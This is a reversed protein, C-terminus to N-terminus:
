QGRALWALIRMLVQGRADTMGDAVAPTWFYGVRGDGVVNAMAMVCSANSEGVIVPVAGLPRVLCAASKRALLSEDPEIGATLATEGAFVVPGGYNAYVEAGLWSAIPRLDSSGRVMYYPAAAFVLVGSGSEVYEGIEALMRSSSVKGMLILLDAELKENDLDERNILSVSAGLAELAEGIAGKTSAFMAVSKGRLRAPDVLASDRLTEALAARMADGDVRLQELRENAKRLDDARAALSTYHGLMADREVQVESLRSDHETAIGVAEDSAARCAALEDTAADEGVELLLAYALSAHGAADQLREAIRLGIATEDLNERARAPLDPAALARRVGETARENVGRWAAFLTAWDRMRAPDTTAFWPERLRKLWGGHTAPLLMEGHAEEVPEPRYLAALDPAATPSYMHALMRGLFGEDGFIADPWVSGQLLSGWTQTWEQATAPDWYNGDGEHNWSYEVKLLPSGNGAMLISSAGEFSATMIPSAMLPRVVSFPRPWRLMTHRADGGLFYMMVGHGNGRERLAEAMELTRKADNDRRRGNERMCFDVHDTHEMLGSVTCHYEVEVDWADDDESHLTYPASVFWVGCDRAADYSSEPHKVSFIADCFADFVMAQAGAKGDPAEVRDNPWRARCDDCRNSWIEEADGLDDEDVFHIYLVGPETAEVFERLVRQKEAILASNSVCYGRSSPAKEYLCTYVEGDPYSRRNKLKLDGYLLNLLRVGRARAYRNHELQVETDAVSRRYYGPSSIVNIKHEMCWDVREEFTTTGPPGGMIWRSPIDPWDHCTLNPFWVDDGEVQLTHILTMVAYLTGQPSRGRLTYDGEPTRTIAYEQAQQDPLLDDSWTVAGPSCDGIYITPAGAAASVLQDGEVMQNVREFLYEAALQAKPSDDVVLGITFAGDRVLYFRGDTAAIEQPTPIINRLPAPLDAALAVTMASAALILTAMLRM